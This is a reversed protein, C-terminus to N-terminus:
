AGYAVLDLPGSLGPVQAAAITRAPRRPAHGQVRALAVTAATTLLACGADKAHKELKAAVNVTDGLVTFELRMADGVAGAVMSGAALGIAVPLAPECAAAREAIWDAAADLVAEAAALADAAAHPVETLAGFSALIGDGLFKDVSGGHLAIVPSFRARYEGLLAVLARPDLQASLASFGRLDVFMAAANPRLVAEGPRLPLDAGAIRLAVEPAFYRAFEAAAATEAAARLLLTRGRRLALALIAAVTLIAALRDFEAGVLVLPGNMWAVYDRTVGAMGAAALAHALILLWGAAAAAGTLLVWRPDFTLARLAIIIFVYLLTPSKLVFAPAQGYQYHYSWITLMLVAVDLVVSGALLPPTLRGRLALRLRLLTLVLYLGLAWPVPAFAVEPSFARRSFAYLAAFLGIAALQALSVLVEAEADSRAVAAAVRAPLRMPRPPGLVATAIWRWAARARM